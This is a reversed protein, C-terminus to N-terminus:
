KRDVKLKTDLDYTTLRHVLSSAWAWGPDDQGARRKQELYAFAAPIPHWSSRALPIKLCYVFSWGTGRWLAAVAAVGEAQLRVGWPAPEEGVCAPSSLNARTTGRRIGSLRPSRGNSRSRSGTQWRM